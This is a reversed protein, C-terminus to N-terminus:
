KKIFVVLISNDKVLNNNSVTDNIDIKVKVDCQIDSLLYINGCVMILIVLDSAKEELEENFLDEVGEEM